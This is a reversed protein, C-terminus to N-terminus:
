RPLFFAFPVTTDRGAFPEVHAASLRAAVCTGEPTRNFPPAISVASVSGDASFTVRARGGGWLPKRHKCSSLARNM